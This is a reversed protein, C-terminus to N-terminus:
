LGQLLWMQPPMGGVVHQQERGAPRTAMAVGALTGATPNAPAPLLATLHSIVETGPAVHLM